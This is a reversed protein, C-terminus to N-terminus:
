HHQAREGVRLVIKKKKLAVSFPIYHTNQEFDKKHKTTLIIHLYIRFKPPTYEKVIETFIWSASLFPEIGLDETLLM